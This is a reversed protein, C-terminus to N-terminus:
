IEDSKIQCITRSNQGRGPLALFRGNGARPPVNILSPFCTVVVGVEDGALLATTDSEGAVGEVQLVQVGALVGAEDVVLYSPHRM